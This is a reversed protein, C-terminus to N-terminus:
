DSHYTDHPPGFVLHSFLMVMSPPRERLDNRFVTGRALRGTVLVDRLSSRPLSLPRRLAPNCECNNCHIALM